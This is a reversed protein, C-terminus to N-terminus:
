YLTKTDASVHIRFAEDGIPEDLALSVVEAHRTMRAGIHEALLLLLGTQRDVAVELWHDPRDTLVHSTRPHDCRLLISEREGALLATGRQRLRGTALVNRCFGNPHVFTDALTESPLRTVAPYIQAFPPLAPDASGVPAAPLRRNTALDTRADYTRVTEGDTVWVDFDRGASDRGSVVKAHGPHRLWIESTEIEEGQTGARRDVIRMRLSDFRLEAEAMFRFLDALSPEDSALTAMEPPRLEARPAAQPLDHM